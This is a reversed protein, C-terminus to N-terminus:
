NGRFEPFLCESIRSYKEAKLIEPEFEATEKQSLRSILNKRFMGPIIIRSIARRRYVTILNSYIPIRVDQFKKYLIDIFPMELDAEVINSDIRIQNKADGAQGYFIARRTGGTVMGKIEINLNEMNELKLDHNFAIEFVYPDYDEIFWKIYGRIDTFEGLREINLDVPKESSIILNSVEDTVARNFRFHFFHTGNMVYSIDPVISPIEILKKLFVYESYISSSAYLTYIGNVQRAGYTKLFIELDREIKDKFFYYLLGFKNGDGITICPINLNLRRSLEEVPFASYNSLVLERDLADPPQIKVDSMNYKQVRNCM